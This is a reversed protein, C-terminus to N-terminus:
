NNEDTKDERLWTSERIQKLEEETWERKVPGWKSPCECELWPEDPWWSVGCTHCREKVDGAM